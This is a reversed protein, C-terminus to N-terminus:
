CRRRVGFAAIGGRYAFPDYDHVAAMAAVVAALGAVAAADLVWCRAGSRRRASGGWPGSSPWCRAPWCAPRMRTRASTCARPTAARRRVATGHRAGLGHGGGADPAGDAPARPPEARARPAAAVAPLVAGRGGAVVPARAAVAARVGRLVLARRAGPALQQRVRAVRARGRAHAGGRGAAPVGGRGPLRRDGRVGGAAPPPRPAALLAGLDIRGTAEREALLLSTILFGSLVFFLDVGLFGGPLWAVGGHYLLVGAVALARVGDLAGVYPLTAAGPRRLGM